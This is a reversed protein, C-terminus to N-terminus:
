RSPKKLKSRRLILPILHSTFCGNLAVTVNTDTRVDVGTLSCSGFTNQEVGTYVVFDTFNMVACCGHVPHLLLLFTTNGDRGSCSGTEPRTHSLLKFWVVYVDDVGRSVNVEGDFNLTRHTHKIACYHNVTCNTTNLWLRFGYPALSVFIFNWADRENVFHVAHTSVEQFNNLLHLHAQTCVWNWKLQSDACFFTEGTNNVQHFHFRDVPVIGILANGENVFIDWSIHLFQSFFPTRLQNFGSSLTRILQHLFEEATFFQCFFLDFSRQTLAYQFVFDDQNGTTRCKLVFTNLRHQIRYNFVQWCRSVNGRNVTHQVVTFVRRSLTM